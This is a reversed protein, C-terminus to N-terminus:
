KLFVMKKTQKFDKTVLRYLYVGTAASQGSNTDGDWTVKYEAAPKKVEDVLTKVLQGAVNYIKLSVHTQERVGYRITTVPNFPNPYNDDLYNALQPRSDIGTPDAIPNELWRIIDLLHEVRAPPFGPEADRIAHYSFGSLIVRAISGSSNSTVQSIVASGSGNPYDMEAVSIGLPMLVDFDNMVPRGGFAYLSDSGSLHSFISGATAVLLPTIPEGAIIHDGDILTFGCYTSKLGIAGAGGLTQWEEAINDGSLYLGPRDPHLDLFSFLVDFDGSKEVRGTGDGITGNSLDGSNWIIKLYYPILQAAVDTVRSGLGNGVMSSAGRVDYRDPKIGLLEFATEFFPQAGRRDFDDVYLIDTAENLANAPLCTMEM